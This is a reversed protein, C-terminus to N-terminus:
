PAGTTDDPGGTEAVLRRYIALVNKAWQDSFEPHHERAALDSAIREATELLNEPDDGNASSSRRLEQYEQWAESREGTM